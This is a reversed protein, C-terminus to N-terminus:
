AGHDDDWRCRWRPVLIIALIGFASRLSDSDVTAPLESMTTGPDVPAAARSYCRARRLRGRGAHCHQDQHAGM